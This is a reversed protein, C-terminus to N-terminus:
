NAAAALITPIEDEVPYVIGGCLPCEGSLTLGDEDTQMTLVPVDTFVTLSDVNDFIKDCRECKFQM